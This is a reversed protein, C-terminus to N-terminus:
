RAGARSLRRGVAIHKYGAVFLIGCVVFVKAREPVTFAVYTTFAGGLLYVVGAVILTAAHKLAAAATAVAAVILPVLTYALPQLHEPDDDAFKIRALLLLVFVAVAGLDLIILM